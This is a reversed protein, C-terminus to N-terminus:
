IDDDEMLVDVAVGRRNVGLKRYINKAHTKVTNPSLGLRKAIEPITESTVLHSAIRQEAVTLGVVTRQKAEREAILGAAHHRLKAITSIHEDILDFTAEIGLESYDDPM